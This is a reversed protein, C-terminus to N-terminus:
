RGSHKRFVESYAPMKDEVDEGLPLDEAAVARTIVTILREAYERTVQQSPTNGKRWHYISPRTTKFLDAADAASIGARDLLSAFGKFDYPKISM